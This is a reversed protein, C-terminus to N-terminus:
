PCPRRRGHLVSAFSRHIIRWSSFFTASRGNGPAVRWPNLHSFMQIQICFFLMLYCLSTHLYHNLIKPMGWEQVFGPTKDMSSAFLSSPPHIVTRTRLYPSHIGEMALHPFQLAQHEFGLDLLCDAKESPPAPALSGLLTAVYRLVRFEGMSPM